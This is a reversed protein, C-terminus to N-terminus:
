WAPRCPGARAAASGRPVAPRLLGFLAHSLYVPRDPIGRGLWACLPLWRGPALGLRLVPDLGQQRVRGTPPLATLALAAALFSWFTLPFVRRLGGMRFLNHERELGYIIVGAGLFMLSKFFAHTLFHYIGASWAGVGLALFMYGIQSITSYAIVRKIDTQAVAAFGGLVLTVGGILGVLYHVVPALEFLVHMRAILYM